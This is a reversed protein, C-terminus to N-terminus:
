EKYVQDHYDLYNLYMYLENYNMDRINTTAGKNKMFRKAEAKSNKNGTPASCGFYTSSGQFLEVFEGLTNDLLDM